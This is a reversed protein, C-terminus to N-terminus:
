IPSGTIRDFTIVGHEIVWTRGMYHARYVTGYRSVSINLSHMASVQNIRRPVTNPTAHGDLSRVDITIVKSDFFVIPIAFHIAVLGGNVLRFVLNKPM